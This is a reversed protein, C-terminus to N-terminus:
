YFIFSHVKWIASSDKDLKIVVLADNKAGNVSIRFSANGSKKSSVINSSVFFGYGDIGGTYDILDQDREIHSIAAQYSDHEKVHNNAWVMISMALAFVIVAGPIGFKFLSLKM